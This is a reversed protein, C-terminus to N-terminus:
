VPDDSIFCQYNNMYDAFFSLVAHFNSSIYDTAFPSTFDSAM